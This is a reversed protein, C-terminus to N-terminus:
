VFINILEMISIATAMGPLFAAEKKMRRSKWDFNRINFMLFLVNAFLMYVALLEVTICEYKWLGLYFFTGIYTLVDGWGMWGLTGQILVVMSFILISVSRELRVYVDMDKVTCLMIITLAIFSLSGIRYVRQTKHDIFAAFILYYLGLSHCVFERGYGYFSFLVIEMAAFILGMIVYEKISIKLGVEKDYKSICYTGAIFVLIEVLIILWIM